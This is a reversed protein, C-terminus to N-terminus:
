GEIGEYFYDFFEDKPINLIKMLFEAEVLDMRAINRIKKGFTCSSIGMIEAIKEYNMGQEIIRGRLKRTNVM